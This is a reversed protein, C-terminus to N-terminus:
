PPKEQAPKDTRDRRRAYYGQKALIAVGGERKEVEPAVRVKIKRFKGDMRPNTSVYGFSYRQRLLDIIETLKEASRHKRGDLVVGGTEKAYPTVNRSNRNFLGLGLSKTYKHFKLYAESFSEIRLGYVSAGSELLENMVENHYYRAGGATAYNDTIVIIARRGAPNTAKRLHEAARYISDAIRTGDGPIEVNKWGPAATGDLIGDESRGLRHAILNRDATFDQILWAASTFFMLAVEDEPKLHTFAQFGAERIENYVNAVSLSVDMLIVISLPASDHSFHTIEQIVGDESVIFSEKTLASVARGTQKNLAQADVVVLDTRLKVEVADSKIQQAPHATYIIVLLLISSLATAVNKFRDM